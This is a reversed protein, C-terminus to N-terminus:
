ESLYVVAAFHKTADLSSNIPVKQVALSGEQAVDLGRVYQEGSSQDEFITGLFLVTKGYWGASVDQPHILLYDLLCANFMIHGVFGPDVGGWERIWQEASFTGGRGLKYHQSVEVLRGNLRLEDNDLLTVRALGLKNTVVIKHGESVNPAQDMDVVGPALELTRLGDLAERVQRAFAPYCLKEVTDANWGTQAFARRLGEVQSETLIYESM